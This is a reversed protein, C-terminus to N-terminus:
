EVISLTGNAGAGRGVTAWCMSSLHWAGLASVSNSTRQTAAYRLINLANASDVFTRCVIADANKRMRPLLMSARSQPNFLVLCKNTLPAFAPIQRYIHPSNQQRFTYRNNPSTRSTKTTTPLQNIVSSLSKDILLIDIIQQHLSKDINKWCCILLLIMQVFREFSLYGVSKDIHRYQKSMKCGVNEYIM